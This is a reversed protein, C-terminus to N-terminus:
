GDRLIIYGLLAVALANVTGIFLHSPASNLVFFATFQLLASVGNLVFILKLVSLM